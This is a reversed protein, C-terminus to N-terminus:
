RSRTRGARPTVAKTDRLVVISDQEFTKNFERAVTFTKDKWDKENEGFLAFLAAFALSNTRLGWLYREVGVRIKLQIDSYQTPEVSVEDITAIQPEGQGLHHAKFFQLRLGTMGREAPPAATTPKPIAMDTEQESTARERFGDVGRPHAHRLHDGLTEFDPFWEECLGCDLINDSSRKM